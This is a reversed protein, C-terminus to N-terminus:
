SVGWRSDSSYVGWTQIRCGFSDQRLPIARPAHRLYGLCRLFPIFDNIRMPPPPCQLDHMSTISDSPVGNRSYQIRNFRNAFPYQSIGNQSLIRHEFFQGCFAVCKEDSNTLYFCRCWAYSEIVSYLSASGFHGYNNRRQGMYRFMCFHSFAADDHM